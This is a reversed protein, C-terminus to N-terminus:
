LTHTDTDRCGRLWPRAPRPRLASTGLPSLRRSPAPDQSCFWAATGPPGWSSGCSTVRGVKLVFTPAARCGRPPRRRFVTCKARISIDSRRCDHFHPTTLNFGVDQSPVDDGAWSNLKWQRWHCPLPSILLMSVSPSEWRQFHDSVPHSLAKPVTLIKM